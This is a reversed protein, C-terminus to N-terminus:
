KADGALAAIMALAAVGATEARLVRPGLGVAVAGSSRAGALEEDTFGGEPGVILARPPAEEVYERLSLKTGPAAIAVRVDRNDALWKSLAQVDEIVPIRNRGCQECAAVAIARWHGVRKLARDGDLTMQSRSCTVPAIASAGLEVAKRVAYDMADAALVGQVLTVELPSEREVDDFREILATVAKKATDVLTAAYEGGTGDFLTIADGRALRLVRVAHHAADDALAITSGVLAADLPTTTHFRPRPRTITQVTLISSAGSSGTTGPTLMGM